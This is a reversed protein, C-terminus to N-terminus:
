HRDVLEGEAVHYFNRRRENHVRNAACDRLIDEGTRTVPQADFEASPQVDLWGFRVDGDHFANFILGHSSLVEFLVM